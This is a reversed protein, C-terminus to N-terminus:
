TEDFDDCSTQEKVDNIADMRQEAMPHRKASWIRVILINSSQNYFPWFHLVSWGVFVM